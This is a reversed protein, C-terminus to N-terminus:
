VAVAGRVGPRPPRSLQAKGRHEAGWGPETLDSAAPPEVAPERPWCPAGEPRPPPAVGRLAKGGGWRQRGGQNEVQVLIHSSTAELTPRPLIALGGGPPPCCQTPVPHAVMRTQRSGLPNEVGLRHLDWGFGSSETVRRPPPTPCHDQGPRQPSSELSPDRLCLPTSVGRGQRRRLPM